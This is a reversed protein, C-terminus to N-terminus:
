PDPFYTVNLDFVQLHTEFLAILMNGTVEFAQLKGGPIHDFIYFSFKYELDKLNYVDIVSAEKLADEHENRSLLASHVFLYNGALSCNNNVVLPPSQFVRSRSSHITAVDIKAISNTDITNASGILHLNSDLVMFENRYRYLYLLRNFADDYHLYGTTCFYGDVQKKLIDPNFTFHPGVLSIKGLAADKNEGFLSRIAFSNSGIPELDQFFETDYPFRKGKWTAVNGKFIRPVAGDHLYFDPSDVKLRVSWFKEEFISDVALGHHSSDGSRCDVTLVHLPALYNGLYATTHGAGALYYSNIKLNLATRENIAHQRFTRLFAGKSAAVKSSLQAMLLVVLIGLATCSVTMAIMRKMM